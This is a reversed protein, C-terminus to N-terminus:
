SVTLQFTELGDQLAMLAAFTAKSATVMHVGGVVAESQGTLVCGESDGNYNGWHFLLNQHGEVGTIEFTEFDHDMGHLRHMSRRCTYTGNPIKPAWGFANVLAPGTAYSHELTHAITQGEDGTLTSFIGDPRYEKRTLTLDM